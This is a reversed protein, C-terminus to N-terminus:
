VSVTKSCRPVNVAVREVLDTAPSCVERGAVWEKLGLKGEGGKEARGLAFRLTATRVNDGQPLESM